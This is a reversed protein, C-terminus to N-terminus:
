ARRSAYPQGAAPSLAVAPFFIMFEAGQGPASHVEISGKCQRIIGYVTSMGLGTGKGKEKTTFFPEFIRERVQTTMGCGSDRVLLRGYSGPEVGVHKSCYQADLEVRGTRVQLTGGQPMADRANVALNLIVQEVGGFDAAIPGTDEGLEVDLAIDDGLTRKLMQAMGSVVSNLDLPRVELVQKRGVALLQATLRAAREASTIVQQIDAAAQHGEPLAKLALDGFGLISTLLNNFDHAVGGALLGLAEMKQSQRLQSEREILLEEAAKRETVDRLLLVSGGHQRLLGTIIELPFTRGDKKRGTAWGVHFGEGELADYIEHKAGPVSRRDFYLMDTKRNLVEELTHGFMRVMTVNSMLINRDRDVVLLVDPNISDIIDELEESRIAAKRWRVYSAILLVVLWVVLFNTMFQVVPLNAHPRFFEAIRANFNIAAGVTAAVVAVSLSISLTRWERSSWAVARFPHRERRKMNM